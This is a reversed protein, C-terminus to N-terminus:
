KNNLIKIEFITPWLKGSILFSDNNENYAIGNLVDIKRKDFKDTLKRLDLYNIIKANQPNIVIIYNEGWINAYIKNDHYELENINQVRNNNDQIEIKRKIKFNEPNIFYLYESGNSM